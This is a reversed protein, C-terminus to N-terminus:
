NVVMIKAVAGSSNGNSNQSAFVLYVGTRVRNGSSDCGDWAIMGGESRGQFFVNGSIDTIKVLSDDMLGTVTIWGTYEPRVPNPYAYVDSYDEAAPSADSEYSVLGSATGFFVRNSNPDCCIAYVTNSPLSSNDVTFHQLIETGDASVLYAGNNETAFWKRNSPDVAVQYIKESSLLYDGFNTGDNRPVVPRRVNSSTMMAAVNDIVLPGADTGIWIKGDHDEAIDLVYTLSINNGDQDTVQKILNYKDDAFNLTTGKDDRALIGLNWGGLYFLKIDPNKKLFYAHMDMENSYGTPFPVTIWDAKTAASPNKRKSAPLVAYMQNGSQFGNGVWLNGDEDINVDLTHEMWTTSPVLSNKQDFLAVVEGNKIVFVGAGCNAIYFMEPDDPDVALYNSGTAMRYNKGKQVVRFNGNSGPINIYMPLPNELRGDAMVTVFTEADYPSGIAGTHYLTVEYNNMYLRSGDASLVFKAPKQMTVGELNLGEMYVTPTSTSLDYHGLGDKNTLWVSSADGGIFVSTAGLSSPVNLTSATGDPSIISYGSTMGVLVNGDTPVLSVGGTLNDVPIERRTNNEFDINYRRVGNPSNQHIFLLESDNLACVDVYWIGGPSKFNSLLNHRDSVPSTYVDNGCILVLNDGLVGVFDVKRNYIGSETVLHKKDDFVVLGFDTGAYIKGEGFAISNITHSTTVVADKIEPLMVTSGDDYLLDINGSEYCIVLYGGSYNYYISTIASTDSLRNTSNYAYTEEDSVSFLNGGTFLYTKDPTEIIKDYTYGITPYLTWRGSKQQAGAPISTLVVALLLLYLAKKIM